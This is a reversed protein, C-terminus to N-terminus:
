KKSGKNEKKPDESNGSSQKYILQGIKMIEQDLDSKTSKLQDAKSNKDDHVKRATDIKSKILTVTEQDLKDKFSNLSSEAQYISQDLVNKLEQAERRAEDEAKHKEAERMMREIENKTLGGSPAITISNSSGTGVDKSTVNLIGNNDISMTCDIKALQRPAPAIGGLIFEGLYKNEKAISREGQYM